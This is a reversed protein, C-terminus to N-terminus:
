GGIYVDTAMETWIQHLVLGCWRARMGGRARSAAVHSCGAAGVPPILVRVEGLTGLWTTRVVRGPPPGPPHLQLLVVPGAVIPKALQTGCPSRSLMTGSGFVLVADWVPLLEDM